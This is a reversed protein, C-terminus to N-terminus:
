YISLFTVSYKLSDNKKYNLYIVQNVLVNM